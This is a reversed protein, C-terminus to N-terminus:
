IFAELWDVMAIIDGLHATEFPSHTYRAPFVMMATPIDAKMFSMGDSAFSTYVGHQLAIGAQDAARELSATLAHDYHVGSDKHILAPGGGLKMPLADDRVAPIDSALGIEIIIAADFQERAALAAAGILGVEEQVTCALTVDWRMEDRKARRALETMVALSVRDDLAKGTVYPGRQVTEASWVVRTGATVGRARLEDRTLGTEVWFDNWTLDGPEPLALTAIHGTAAGIFGDIPGSRALVTVRQGITFANRMSWTRAWGQGNALWLFGEPHVDRVLFTLEDGHAALLLKKGDGRAGGGMRGLVNGLRTRETRLGAEDWLAQMRATIAAEQGCPAVIETLEKILEFMM